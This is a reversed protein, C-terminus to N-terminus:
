VTDLRESVYNMMLLFKGIYKGGVSDIAIEAKQLQDLNVWERAVRILEMPSNRREVHVLFNEIETIREKTVYFLHEALDETIVKQWM